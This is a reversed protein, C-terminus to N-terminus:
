FSERGKIVGDEVKKYEKVRLLTLAAYDLDEMSLNEGNVRDYVENLISEIIKDEKDM